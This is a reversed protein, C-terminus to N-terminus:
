RRKRRPKPAIPRIEVPIVSCHGQRDCLKWESMADAKTRFVDILTGRNTVCAWGRWAKVKRKAM